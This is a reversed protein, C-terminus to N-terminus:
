MGPCVASALRAREDRDLVGDEGRGPVHESVALGVVFEACIEVGSAVRLAGACAGDAVEFGEAVFHHDGGYGGSM